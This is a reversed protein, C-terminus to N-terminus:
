VVAPAPNLSQSAREREHGFVQGMIALGRRIQDPTLGAFSLRLAGPDFRSVAFYRGPLYGVGQREVAALLENSDLPEPLRVWLNMGGRPHTVRTGAPLYEAAAELTAAMREAGARLMRQRHRDLNGSEAFELLVAQSLQDTHLDSAQKAQRLRELLPRPGVAWGVRLGPFSVKSFSRLLVTTGSSDLRKLAPLDEGEYRLEHYADNEILPVGARQTAALLDRRAELSLTHGTPNQFNPTVVVARPRERDVVRAFQEIDLGDPGMPVGVLRAGMQTFLQKLGPYVPDEVVVTDGPRVLVRALLDLAQQCGNTVILDDAPSAVGERRARELLYRRLPGYGSPSGLQLIDALDTRALMAVCSSRFDDLPFLERSPRSTAFSIEVPRSASGPNAPAEARELVRAWDFAASEPAGSTVFSGRGVHGSILGETELLEYAASITTRNLGLLGALERTAPLREGNAMQGARIRQRIQEYLQRYLPIDSEPHLVPAFDM